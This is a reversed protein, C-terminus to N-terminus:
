RSATGAGYGGNASSPGATKRPVSSGGSTKGFAQYVGLLQGAGQLLTGYAQNGYNAAQLQGGKRYAAAQLEYGHAERRANRKITLKDLESLSRDSEIVDAASGSGADIGQAAFSARQGGTLQRENVDVQGVAEDGRTLADAAQQEAIDANAEGLKKSAKANKRDGVVSNATQAAILSGLIIGLTTVAM